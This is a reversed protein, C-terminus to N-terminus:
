NDQNNDNKDDSKKEDKENRGTFDKIKKGIDTSGDITKFLAPAKDLAIKGLIDLVFLSTSDNALIITGKVDGDKERLYVDFSRGEFRSTMMEEYSESKYGALLKSYDEKSFKSENKDIMLFKMKEIDKILEDFEKDDTQNLMRLTNKYFYLSLGEYKEDLATTTKTQGVALGAYSILLLAFIIKM